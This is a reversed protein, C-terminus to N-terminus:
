GGENDELPWATIELKNGDPDLFYVSWSRERKKSYLIPIGRKKLEDVTGDFDGANVRFAVHNGGLGKDQLLHRGEGEAGQILGILSSGCDLFYEAGPKQRERGSVKLGLVRTYFELSKELDGVNIAAHDIGLVRIM